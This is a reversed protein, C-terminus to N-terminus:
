SLNQLYVGAAGDIVTLVKESELFNKYVKGVARIRNETYKYCYVMFIAATVLLIICWFILALIAQSANIVKLCYFMIIMIFFLLIMIIVINITLTLISTYYGYLLTAQVKDVSTDLKKLIYDKSEEAIAQSYTNAQLTAAINTVSAEDDSLIKVKRRYDPM